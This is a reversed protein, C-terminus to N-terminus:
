CADVNSVGAPFTFKFNMMPQDKLYESGEESVFLKFNDENIKEYYGNKTVDGYKEHIKLITEQNIPGM